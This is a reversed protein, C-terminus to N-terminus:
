ARALTGTSYTEQFKNVLHERVTIPKNKPEEGEELCSPLCEIVYDLDGMIFLAVSYRDQGKPPSVVRHLTSSYKDNTWRAEHRVAVNASLVADWLVKGRAGLDIM